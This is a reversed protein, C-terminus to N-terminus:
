VFHQMKNMLFLLVIQMPKPDIPCVVETSGFLKKGMFDKVYVLPIVSIGYSINHRM